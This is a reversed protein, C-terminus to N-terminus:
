YQANLVVLGAIGGYSLDTKWDSSRGEQEGRGLNSNIIKWASPQQKYISLNYGASLMFSPIVAMTFFKM